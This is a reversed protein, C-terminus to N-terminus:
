HHAPPHPAASGSPAPPAAADAPFQKQVNATIQKLLPDMRNMLTNIRYEVVAPHNKAYTSMRNAFAQPDGADAMLTAFFEPRPRFGGPTLSFLFRQAEEPSKFTRNLGARADSEVQKEMADQWRNFDVQDASEAGASASASAAGTSDTTTPKRCASTVSALALFLTCGLAALRM